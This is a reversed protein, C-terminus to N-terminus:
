IHFALKRSIYAFLPLISCRRDVAVKKHVGVFAAATQATAPNVNNASTNTFSSM